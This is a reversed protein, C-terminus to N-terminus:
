PALARIRQEYSPHSDSSMAAKEADAPLRKLLRTLAQPDRGASELLQQAFRDAALEQAHAAQRSETCPMSGPLRHSDAVLHGAEHALAAYLEDDSWAQGVFSSSIEVTSADLLARASASPSDVLVLSLAPAAFVHATLDEQLQAWVRVVQEPWNDRAITAQSIPPLTAASSAYGCSQLAAQHGVSLWWASAGAALGCTLVGALLATLSKLRRPAM